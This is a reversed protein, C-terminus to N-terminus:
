HYMLRWLASFDTRAPMLGESVIEQDCPLPILEVLNENGVLLFASWCAVTKPLWVDM